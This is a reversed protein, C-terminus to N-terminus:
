FIPFLACELVVKMHVIDQTAFGVDKMINLCNEIALKSQAIIGGDIVEGDIM